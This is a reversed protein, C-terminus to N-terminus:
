KFKFGFRRGTQLNKWYHIESAEGRPHYHIHETKAYLWEPYRWDLENNSIQDPPQDDPNNDQDNDTRAEHLGLNDEVRNM